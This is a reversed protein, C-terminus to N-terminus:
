TEESKYKFHYDEPSANNELTTTRSELVNVDVRLEDIDDEIAAIDIENQATRGKLAVIENSNEQVDDELAQIRDPLEESPYHAGAAKGYCELHGLKYIIWSYRSESGGYNLQTVPLQNKDSLM